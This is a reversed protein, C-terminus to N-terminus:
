LLPSLYPTILQHNLECFIYIQTTSFSHNGSLGALADREKNLWQNFQEAQTAVEVSLAENVKQRELESQLAANRYDSYNISLNM